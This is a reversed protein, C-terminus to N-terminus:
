HKILPLIINILKEMDVPKASHANMGAALYSAVEDELVNASLAVIPINAVKPDTSARIALTAQIGDMVPMQIDMLVLQFNNTQNILDIAEKGDNATTVKAGEDSLLHNIVVQNIENDEVVLISVDLLRNELTETNSLNQSENMCEKITSFLLETSCPKSLVHQIPLQAINLEISATEYASLIIIKPMNTLDLQRVQKIFNEGDMEHMTWDSIILKIDHESNQLKSLGEKASLAKIVQLGAGTLFEGVISLAIPNDDVILVEFKDEFLYQSDDDIIVDKNLEIMMSATFCSGGNQKSTVEINGNMAECLKKSISLGLGTGGYKRTTSTDAQNFKNFLGALESDLMGIGTDTVKFYIIFQGDAAGLPQMSIDVNIKGTDTFKIANGCINILVQNIRFVDGMLDPFFEGEINVNFSLGKAKCAEDFSVKLNDIVSNISFAKTELEVKGSEIKSYDLIDNIVTLLHQGSFSLKDVYGLQLKDLKTQKLLGTLGIVGNLPTRIEHSMNALFESKANESVKAKKVAKALQENNKKLENKQKVLESTQRTVEKTLNGQISLLAHIVIAVCASLVIGAIFLIFLLSNPQELNQNTPTIVLTFQNNVLQIPFSFSVNARKIKNQKVLQKAPYHYQNNNQDVLAYSFENQELNSDFFSSIFQSSLVLGIVEAKPNEETVKSLVPMIYLIFAEDRIGKIPSSFNSILPSKSEIVPFILPGIPSDPTVNRGILFQENLDPYTYALVSYHGDVLTAASINNPPAFDFIDFNSFKPERNQRVQELVSHKDDASFRRIASIKRGEPFNPFVRTIFEEFEAYSVYSSSSFLNAISSVQFFSRKLEAEIDKANIEARQQYHTLLNTKEQNLALYYIYGSCFFGFVLAILSYYKSNKFLFHKLEQKM